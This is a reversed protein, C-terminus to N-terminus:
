RGEPSLVIAIRQAEGPRIRVARRTKPRYGDKTVELDMLEAPYLDLIRWAGEADTATWKRGPVRVKAGPVPRGTVEDRVTGHLTPVGATLVLLETSAADIEVVCTVNRYRLVKGTLNAQYRGPPVNELRFRGEEDTKAVFYLEGRLADTRSGQLNVNAGPVPGGQYHRAEGEVTLGSPASLRLETPRDPGVGIQIRGYGGPYRFFVQYQGAELNRLVAGGSEGTVLEREAQRRHGPVFGRDRSVTIKAGGLPSGDPGTLRIDLAGRGPALTRGAERGGGDERRERLALLRDGLARNEKELGDRVVQLRAIEPAPDDAPPPAPVPSGSPSEHFLGLSLIGLLLLLAGVFALTKRSM